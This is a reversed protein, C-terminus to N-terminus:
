TPVLKDPLPVNRRNYGCPLVALARADPSWVEHVSGSGELDPNKALGPKLSAFTSGPALTPTVQQGTPLLMPNLPGLDPEPAERNVAPCAALILAAAVLLAVSNRNM